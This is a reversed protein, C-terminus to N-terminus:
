KQDASAVMCSVGVVASALVRATLSRLASRRSLWSNM